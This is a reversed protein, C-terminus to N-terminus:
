TIPVAGEHRILPLNVYKVSHAFYESSVKVYNYERMINAVAQYFRIIGKIQIFVVGITIDGIFAKLFVFAYVIVLLSINFLSIISYHRVNKKIFNEKLINVCDTHMKEVKDGILGLTNYIRIDKGKEYNFSLRFLLYGIVRNLPMSLDIIRINHKGTKGQM